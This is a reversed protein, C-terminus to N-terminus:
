PQEKLQYLFPVKGRRKLGFSEIFREISEENDFGKIIIMAMLWHAPYPKEGPYRQGIMYSISASYGMQQIEQALREAQGETCLVNIGYNPM